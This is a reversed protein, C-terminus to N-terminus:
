SLSEKKDPGSRLIRGPGIKTPEPRVFIKDTTGGSNADPQHASRERYRRPGAPWKRGVAVSRRRWVADPPKCWGGERQIGGCPYQEGNLKAAIRSYRCGETLLWKASNEETKAVLKTM